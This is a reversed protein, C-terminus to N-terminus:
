GTLDIEFRTNCCHSELLTVARIEAFKKVDLIVVRFGVEAQTGLHLVLLLIVAGAHRLGSNEQPPPNYGGM